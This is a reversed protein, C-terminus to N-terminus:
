AGTTRSGSRTTRRGTRASPTASSRAARRSASCSRRSSSGPPSPPLTTSSVRTTTARFRVARGLPGPRGGDGSLAALRLRRPPHSPRDHAHLDAPVFLHQPHVHRGHERRDRQHRRDRLAAPLRDPRVRGGDLGPLGALGPRVAGEHQRVNPEQFRQWGARLNLLSRPSIAWVHDGTVGDNVRYLFNGIPRIGNVEGAWNGRAEQRDNRTYRVFLSQTSASGTIAASRSRFLLRRHAPQQEPLQEAAPRRGDPEPAALVAHVRARHPQDALGARHQRPLAPARHPRRRPAGRHGSRLHHHRGALLESFDGNRMKETPVTFQGPEPFEDYLWEVAGFFFTRNKLIPGGTFGGFRDYSMAAKPRDPPRSSSTTRRCSTTATTGTARARSPTPAARSRSTSRPARPTARSPMSRRRRSRSSRCRAPRRSSPSAAAAPWTPRGTSPSSTAARAATPRRHRVHRRQRLAPQVQSRRHLRRRARPAGAHVPQRGLAAAPRHAERRDGPGAVRVAHRATPEGRTM